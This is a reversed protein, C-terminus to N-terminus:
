VKIQNYDVKSLNVYSRVTPTIAGGGPSVDVYLMIQKDTNNVKRAQGANCYIDVHKCSSKPIYSSPWVKSTLTPFYLHVNSYLFIQDGSLVYTRTSKMNEKGRSVFQVGSGLGTGAANVVELMQALKKNLFFVGGLDNYGELKVGHSTEKLLETLWEDDNMRLYIGSVLKDNKLDTM